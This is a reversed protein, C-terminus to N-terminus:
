NPILGCYKFSDLFILLQKTLGKVLSYIYDQDEAATKSNTEVQNKICVIGIFLDKEHKM